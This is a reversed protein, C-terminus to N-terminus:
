VTRTCCEQAGDPRRQGHVRYDKLIGAMPVAEPFAERGGAQSPKACVNCAEFDLRRTGLRLSNSLCVTEAETWRRLIPSQTIPTGITSCRLAHSPRREGIRAILQRGITATPVTSHFVSAIAGPVRTLNFRDRGVGLWTGTASRFGSLLHALRRGEPRRHGARRPTPASPNTPKICPGRPTPSSHTTATALCRNTRGTLFPGPTVAKDDVRTVPNSLRASRGTQSAPNLCWSGSEM